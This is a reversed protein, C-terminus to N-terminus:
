TPYFQISIQGQSTECHLIENQPLRLRELNINNNTMALSFKDLIDLQREQQCNPCLVDREAFQYRPLNIAEQHGCNLCEMRDIVENRLWLISDSFGSVDLHKLIEEVTLSPSYTLKISPELTLDHALCYEQRPIKVKFANWPNLNLFLKEGAELIGEKQHLYLLAQQVEMAAIISAITATTPM